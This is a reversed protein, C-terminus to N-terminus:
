ASKKTFAQGYWPAYCEYIQLVNRPIVRRELKYYLNWIEINKQLTNGNQKPGHVVANISSSKRLVSM